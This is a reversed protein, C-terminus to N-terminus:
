CKAKSISIMASALLFSNLAHNGSNDKHVKVCDYFNSDNKIAFFSRDFSNNARVTAMSNIEIFYVQEPLLKNKMIIELETKTECKIRADIRCFTNISFTKSLQIYKNKLTDSINPLILEKFGQWSNKENEGFFWEISDSQPVNIVTPFVDLEESIPNYVVPTTIDYGSIFEQYIGKDNKYKHYGRRVGFSSGFNLPRYIGSDDNIDIDKPLQVEIAKAILNSIFKNEGALMTSADCPICPINMFSCTSPVLASASLNCSGCNLNLVFDINPLSRNIAKEVFTRVDLILPRCYLDQIANMWRSIVNSKWIHYHEFGPSDEGEFIYVIAITKGKIRDLDEYYKNLDM